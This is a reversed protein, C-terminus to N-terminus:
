FISLQNLLPQLNSEFKKWSNSSGQYMKQRVQHSSITKVARDNEHFNLCSEDWELDCYELLKRTEKEQNVTLNEYNLDYIKNPYLEHWFNMLNHYLEYFLALDSMNYAYGNGREGFYYKYISWCTARADRKLHIIKAEPIAALIFGIYQFNLPMKDTVINKSTRMDAISNLYQNRIGLLAKKTISKSKSDLSINLLPTVYEAM